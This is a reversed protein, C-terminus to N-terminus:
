GAEDDGGADVGGTGDPINRRQRGLCLENCVVLLDIIHSETGVTDVDKDAAALITTDAHKVKAAQLVRGNNILRRALIVSTLKVMSCVMFALVLMEWDVARTTGTGRLGLLGHGVRWRQKTEGGRRVIRMQQRSKSLVGVNDTDEVYSLRALSQQFKM